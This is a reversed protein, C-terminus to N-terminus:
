SALRIGSVPIRNFVFPVLSMGFLASSTWYTRQDKSGPQLFLVFMSPLDLHAQKKGFHRFVRLQPQIFGGLQSIHTVGLDPSHVIYSVYLRWGLCPYIKRSCSCRLVQMPLSKWPWFVSLGNQVKVVTPDHWNTMVCVASPLPQWCTSCLSVLFPPLFLLPLSSAVVYPTSRLGITNLKHWVNGSTLSLFAHVTRESQEALNFATTRLPRARHVHWPLPIARAGIWLWAQALTQKICRTPHQGFLLQSYIISRSSFM